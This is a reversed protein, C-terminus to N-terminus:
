REQDRVALGISHKDEFLLIALDVDIMRLVVCEPCGDVLDGHAGEVFRRATGCINEEAAFGAEDTSQPLCRSQFSM